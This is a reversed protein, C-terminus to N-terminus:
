AGARASRVMLMAFMVAIGLGLLSSTVEDPVRAWVLVLGVCLAIAVGVAIRWDDGIVLDYWIRLFGRTAAGLRAM